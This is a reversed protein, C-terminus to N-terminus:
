FFFQLWICFLTLLTSEQPSPLSHSSGSGRNPWFSCFQGYRGQLKWLLLHAKTHLRRLLRKWPLRRFLSLLWWMWGEELLLLHHRLLHCCQRGILHRGRAALQWWCYRWLFKRTLHRCRGRALRQRLVCHLHTNTHKDKNLDTARHRYVDSM